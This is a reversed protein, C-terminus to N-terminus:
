AIWRSDGLNTLRQRLARRAEYLRGRVTSRPISLRAGIEDWDLGERYRLELVDRHIPPLGRVEDWVWGDAAVDTRALDRVELPRERAAKVADRRAAGAAANRAIAVLWGELLEPRELEALRRFAQYFTQQVLDERRAPDREARAVVERVRRDYRRVVEAFAAVDGGTIRVVLAEPSEDAEM